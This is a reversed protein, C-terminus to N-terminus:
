LVYIMSGFLKGHYLNPSPLSQLFTALAEPLPGGTWVTGRVNFATSQAATTRPQLQPPPPIPPRHVEWGKFDPRPYRDPNVSQLLEKESDAPGRQTLGVTRDVTPKAPTTDLISKQLHGALSESNTCHNCIFFV